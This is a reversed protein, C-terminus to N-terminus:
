KPRKSRASMKSQGATPPVREALAADTAKALFKELAAKKAKAATEQREVFDPDRMRSM